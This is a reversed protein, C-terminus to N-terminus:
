TSFPRVPWSRRLSASSRCKSSPISSRTSSRTAGSPRAIAGFSPCVHAM